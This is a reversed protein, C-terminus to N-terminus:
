PWSLSVRAPTRPGRRHAHFGHFPPGSPCALLHPSDHTEELFTSGRGWNDGLWQAPRVEEQCSFDKEEYLTWHLSATFSGRRLRKGNPQPFPLGEISEPTM